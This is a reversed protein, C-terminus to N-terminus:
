RGGRVVDLTRVVPTARGIVDLMPSLLDAEDVIQEVLRRAADSEIEVHCRIATFGAPLPSGTDLMGAIASDSEIVVTISRVSVGARAARMRYLMALCSGLAARLLAGPTPGDGAGGLAAPLDTRFEHEGERSHCHLGDVLVTTSRQTGRGFDPKRQLAAELRMLAEAIRADAETEVTTTMGADHVPRRAATM